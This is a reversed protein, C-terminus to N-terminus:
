ASPDVTQCQMPTSDDRNRSDPSPQEGRFGPPLDEQGTFKPEVFWNATAATLSAAKTAVFVGTDITEMPGMSICMGLVFGLVALAVEPRFKPLYSRLTSVLPVYESVYASVSSSCSSFNM